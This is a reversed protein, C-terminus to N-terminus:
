QKGNLLAVLMNKIECLDDKINNIEKAHREIEKTRESHLARKEVYSKHQMSNTMLIAGTEPDRALSTDDEVRILNMM